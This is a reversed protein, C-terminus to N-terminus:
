ALWTLEASLVATSCVSVSTKLKLAVCGFEHGSRISSVTDEAGDLTRSDSDRSPLASSIDVVGDGGRWYAGRGVEDEPDM